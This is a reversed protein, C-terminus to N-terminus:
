YCHRWLLFSEGLAQRKRDASRPVQEKAEGKGVRAKTIYGLGMPKQREPIVLFADVINLNLREFIRWAPNITKAVVSSSMRGLM